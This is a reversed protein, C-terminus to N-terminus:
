RPAETCAGNWASRAPNSRQARARASRPICPRRQTCAKRMAGPPHRAGAGAAATLSRLHPLRHLDAGAAPSDAPGRPMRDHVDRSRNAAARAIREDAAAHAASVVPARHSVACLEHTGEGHPAGALDRARPVHRVGPAQRDGEPRAGRPVDHVRGQGRRARQHVGDQPVVRVDSRARAGRQAARPLDHVAPPRAAGVGAGGQPVDCMRPGQGTSAGLRRPV